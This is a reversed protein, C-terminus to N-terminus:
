RVAKGVALSRAAHWALKRAAEVRMQPHQRRIQTLASDFAARRVPHSFPNSRVRGRANRKGIYTEAHRSAMEQARNGAGTRGRSKIGHYPDKPKEPQKSGAPRYGSFGTGGLTMAGTSTTALALGATMGIMAGPPFRLEFPLGFLFNPYTRM